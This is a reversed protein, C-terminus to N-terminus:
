SRQGGLAVRAIQAVFISTGLAFMIAGMRAVVPDGTGIGVVLMLVAGTILVLHVHAARSSFLEAVTPVREKGMRGAFRVTWALLPVIKYFFGMVYTVIAGLVGIVVYLMALRGHGLGRALVVPGLIMAVMLWGLAVAAFRMGVDLTKRVRARYFGYAQRLFAALGAEVLVVGGWTPASWGGALGTGLLAAGAGLLTVARATWRTDAGHSLLFMPLLRHSVGVIMVLVWGILAVHLHTALVRVRAAAIFGTHLNHLLVLGLVFTALLFSVSVWVAAWTVDRHRARVLSAAVRGVVILIGATVLAVGVMRTALVGTAVGTAFVGVGLAFSWFGVHGLRVARVPANLAVPMFQSLAGFITMTIWGLTFLHTVGAVRPSVFAGAALEPAVWVLGAAGAVLYLVAAAFHEAALALSAAAPSVSAPAGSSRGSPGVVPIPPATTSAALSPM